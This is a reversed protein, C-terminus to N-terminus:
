KTCQIPLMYIEDVDCGGTKISHQLIQDSCTIYNYSKDLCYSIQTLASVKKGNSLTSGHCSLIPKVSMKRSVVDQFHSLTFSKSASPYIGGAKLAGVTDLSERLLLALEFYDHENSLGDLHADIACNGHKDFEHKYFDDTTPSKYDTWYTHLQDELDAIANSDFNKGPCYSPYTSDNRNPWLGHITFYDIECPISCPSLTKCYDGPWILALLFVDWSNNQSKRNSGIPVISFSGLVLCGVLILPAFRLM